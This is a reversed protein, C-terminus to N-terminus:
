IMGESHKWRSYESLASTISIKAVRSLKGILLVWLKSLSYNGKKLLNKRIQM